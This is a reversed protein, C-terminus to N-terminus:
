AEIAAPVPPAGDAGILEPWIQHWETPWLDWRKVGGAHQELVAGYKPPFKRKGHFYFHAAQKSCGLLRAVQAPGGANTFAAQIPTM